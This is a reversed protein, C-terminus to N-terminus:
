RQGQAEAMASVFDMYESATPADPLDEPMAAHGLDDQMYVMTDELADLIGPTYAVSDKILMWFTLCTQEWLTSYKVDNRASVPGHVYPALLQCAEEKDWRQRSDPFLSRVFPLVQASLEIQKGIEASQRRVTRSQQCPNESKWQRQERLKILFLPVLINNACWHRNTAIRNHITDYDKLEVITTTLTGDDHSGYIWEMLTSEDYDDSIITNGNDQNLAYDVLLQCPKDYGLVALLLLVSELAGIWGFDLRLLKYYEALAQNYVSKGRDVTDTSIYALELIYCALKHRRQKEDRTALTQLNEESGMGTCSNRLNHIMKCRKKHFAFNLKQCERSCYHIVRCRSCRLAPVADGVADSNRMESSGDTPSRLIQRCQVCYDFPLDYAKIDSNTKNPDSCFEFLPVRTASPSSALSM